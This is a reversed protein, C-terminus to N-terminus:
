KLFSHLPIDDTVLIPILKKYVSQILIKEELVETPGEKNTLKANAMKQSDSSDKRREPFTTFDRNLASAM